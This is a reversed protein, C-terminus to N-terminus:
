PLIIKFITAALDILSPSMPDVLNMVLCKSCHNNQAMKCFVASKMASCRIQWNSELPNPAEPLIDLAERHDQMKKKRAEKEHMRAWARVLHLIRSLHVEVKCRRRRMRSLLMCNLRMKERRNKIREERAQEKLRRRKLREEEKNRRRELRQNIRDQREQVKLRRQELMYGVRAQRERLETQQRQWAESAAVLRSGFNLEIRALIHEFSAISRRKSTAWTECYRQRFAQWAAEEVEVAVGRKM